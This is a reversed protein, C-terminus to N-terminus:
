NPFIDRQRMAFSNGAFRMQKVVDNLQGREALPWLCGHGSSPVPILRCHPLSVSMRQATIADRECDEGFAIEVLPARAAPGAKDPLLHGLETVGQRGSIASVDTTRVGAVLVAKAELELGTVLAPLAGSSTGATYIEIPRRREVLSHLWKVVSPFDNGIGQIGQEYSTGRECRLVLVDTRLASFYELFIPIPMMLRRAIGTFCVLLGQTSAGGRSYLIHGRRTHVRRLSDECSYKAPFLHSALGDAWAHERYLNDGTPLDVADSRYTCRIHKILQRAEAPSLSNELAIHLANVSNVTACSALIRDYLRCVSIVSTDVAPHTWLGAVRQRRSVSEMADRSQLGNFADIRSRLLTSNNKRSCFEDPMVRM